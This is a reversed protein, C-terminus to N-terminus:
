VYFGREGGRRSTLIVGKNFYCCFFTEWGLRYVRRWTCYMMLPEDCSEFPLGSIHPLAVTKKLPVSCHLAESVSNLSSLLSFNWWALAPLGCKFFISGLFFRLSFPMQSCIETMNCINLEILYINPMWIAQCTLNLIQWKPHQITQCQNLM